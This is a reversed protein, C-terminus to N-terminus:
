CNLRNSVPHRMLQKNLGYKIIKTYFIALLMDHEVEKVAHKKFITKM